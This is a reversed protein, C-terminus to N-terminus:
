QNVEFNPTGEDYGDCFDEEGPELDLGMQEDQLLLLDAISYNNASKANGM